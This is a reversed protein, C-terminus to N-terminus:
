LGYELNDIMYSKLDGTLNVKLDYDEDCIDCEDINLAERYPKTEILENLERLNSMVSGVLREFKEAAEKQEKTLKIMVIEKNM